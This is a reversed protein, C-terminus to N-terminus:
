GLHFIKSVRLQQIKEKALESDKIEGQTEDLEDQIQKQNVGPMSLQVKLNNVTDMLKVLADDMCDVVYKRATTNGTRGNNVFIETQLQLPQPRNTLIM